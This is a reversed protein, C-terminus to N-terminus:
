LNVEGKKDKLIKNFIKTLNQRKQNSIFHPRDPAENKFVTSMKTMAVNTLDGSKLSEFTLNGKENFVSSTKLLHNYVVVFKGNSSTAVANNTKIVLERSNADARFLAKLYGKLLHVEHRKNTANYRVIVKSNEGIKIFGLQKLFQITVYSKESVNISTENKILQNTKLSKAKKKGLALYTSKGFVKHIKALDASLVVQTSLATLLFLLILNM